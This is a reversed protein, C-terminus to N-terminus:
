LAEDDRCAVIRVAGQIDVDTKDRWRNKQRNRLWLSISADSPPYYKEQILTRVEDGVVVDKKETRSFGLAKRYLSKAVRADAEERGKLLTERFKKDTACFIQFEEPSIELFKPLEENTAGLLCFRHLQRILRPTPKRAPCLGGGPRRILHSGECTGDLVRDETLRHYAQGFSDLDTNIWHAVEILGPLLPDLLIEDLPIGQRVGDLIKAAAHRTYHSEEM